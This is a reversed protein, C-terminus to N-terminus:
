ELFGLLVYMPQDFDKLAVLQIDDIVVDVLNTPQDASHLDLAIGM